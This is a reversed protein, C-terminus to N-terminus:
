YFFTGTQHMSKCQDLTTEVIYEAQANLVTSIHSHMGCYYITRSISIKCQIVNISEFKSLQLLQVYTRQVQPETLPTNCEEVDLLSMTTTNLNTTGCDFGIIGNIGQILLNWSLIFYIITKM